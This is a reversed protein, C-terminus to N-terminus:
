PPWARCARPRTAPASARFRILDEISVQLRCTRGPGRLSHPSVCRVRKRLELEVECERARRRGVLREGPVGGSSVARGHAPDGRRAWMGVASVEVGNSTSSGDDHREGLKRSRSRLQAHTGQRCRRWAHVAKTSSRLGLRLLYRLFPCPRACCTSTGLVENTPLKHFALGVLPYLDKVGHTM